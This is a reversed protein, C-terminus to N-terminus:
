WISMSRRVRAHNSRHSEAVFVSGGLPGQHPLRPHQRCSRPHCGDHSSCVADVNAVSPRPCTRHCNCVRRCLPRVLRVAPPREGPGRERQGVQDTQELHQGPQRALRGRGDVGRGTRPSRRHLENTGPRWAGRRRRGTPPATPESRGHRPRVRRLVEVVQRRSSRGGVGLCIRSARRDTCCLAGGDPASGRRVASPPALRPPAAQRERSRVARAGGDDRARTDACYHLHGGSPTVATPGGRRAARSGDVVHGGRPAQEVERSCSELSRIWRSAEWVILLASGCGLELTM